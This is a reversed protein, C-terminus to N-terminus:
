TKYKSFIANIEDGNLHDKVLLTAVIDDIASKNSRILEIANKMEGALINNVAARVESAISGSEYETETVCALGLGADMGFNCVINRAISTATKLDGSAGTTLGEEDGYYVLEAARGGLATRIRELLMKKTYSGIKETNGHQMYGGHNGRAVITLYSPTEGSHWCLFAHGAEHRATRELESADWTKEDGYSYTEFAEEFIGDDVLTSGNRVAIRMSFEFILELQALSMGTSRVAINEIMGESLKHAKSKSLKMKIFRIRDEKDPLDIYIHRDFRRLLAPDLSKATGPEVEFNTAALVFVPKKPDTKFGDMEALFATLISDSATEGGTREKAIADIEDVFLITPAYKRATAFLSHVAEEGEGVYKKRFQNGEASIFTVDSEGAMAKALMTKGTGPPGYFLVGKPVGLGKSSFAKPNKLYNVFYELEEKAGKAGIVDDFRTNPKSMNNLISGTDEADVATELKIDFVKIEAKKGDESINQATEYTVIKSARALSIMSAQHHLQMSIDEVSKRLSEGDTTCIVGRAGEKSLSFLEEQTYNNCSGHVVYVPVDSNECAYRFFDRGESDVDEINLSANNNVRVGTRLDCLVVDFHDKEISEVSEEYSSCFSADYNLLNARIGECIKEQAFVLLKVKNENRFLRLIEENDEPLEVIFDINEINKIEYENHESSVLRFLEYLESSFFASARSKVTRADAHGGEAFMVCSFIDDTINCEIGTEETFSKASGIIERETIERLFQAEMHNFMVVNGTAFRSCIAAPFASKGTKPDVDKELASLITKRSIHSLNNESSGEYIKRGANTTFFIITQSFDIEKSAKTDRLRGADLLQLFLHIADIHAKEIEDFLLVCKPNKNVFGTLAGEESGVIIKNSGCLETVSHSDSYESMDFRKYPLGLMEAVQEALFTKGVGPPGAFLYTARPKRRNKDTFKQLEAQFYGSAFLSIANDQGYVVSCLKKQMEKVKCTLEALQEKPPLKNADIEQKKQNESEEDDKKEDAGDKESGDDSDDNKKPAFISSLQANAKRLADESYAGTSEDVDPITPKESSKLKESM